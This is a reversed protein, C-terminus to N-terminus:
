SAGFSVQVHTGGFKVIELATQISVEAGSTDVVLDIAKTGRSQICLQEKMQDASRRSFVLKPEGDKPTPPKFTDTAVYSKAFELRSPVIDVAIIREAGLARAV